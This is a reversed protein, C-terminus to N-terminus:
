MKICRLLTQTQRITLRLWYPYSLVPAGSLAERLNGLGVRGVGRCKYCWRAERRHCSHCIAAAIWSWDRWPHRLDWHEGGRLSKAGLIQEQWGERRFWWNREPAQIMGNAILCMSSSRLSHRQPPFFWNKQKKTKNQVIWSAVSVKYFYLLM